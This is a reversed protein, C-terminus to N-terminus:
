RSTPDGKIHEIVAKMAPFAYAAAGVHTADFWRIKPKGAAEWLRKCSEPPVVDDRSAALFLIRKGKLHDAYTLPDIPAVLAKLKEKSGGILENLKRFPAAKPNGYFADVLGGGTLLLCASTLRPESEVTLAALFSGLSTGVIGLRDTDVEPRSALWAVARRNDLVAQRFAATTHDVDPSVMRLNNGDRRPGYYPMTVVLAAIGNQALWLAEGRSVVQKGDLIDLVIAAPYRGPAAPCFYEAYVTNNAPYPSKVASPFRLNSITVGSYPLNYEPEMKFSFTHPALRHREPVQNKADDSTFTVSGPEASPTMLLVALAPIFM